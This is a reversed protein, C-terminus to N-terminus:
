ATRLIRLMKVGDKTVTKTEFCMASRVPDPLKRLNHIKQRVCGAKYRNIYISEGVNLLEIPIGRDALVMAEIDERRLVITTAPQERVARVLDTLLVDLTNFASTPLYDVVDLLVARIRAKLNPKDITDM